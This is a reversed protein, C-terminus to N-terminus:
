SRGWTASSTGPTEPFKNYGVEFMWSERYNWAWALVDHPVAIWRGDSFANAKPLDYYGGQAKGIPEAVDGVDVAGDALLLPFNNQIQIMDPGSKMEVAAAARTPVDNQGIREVQIEVGMQKGFEAAQDMFVKDTAPIFHLQMLYHLKTGKAYAPAQGASSSALFGVRSGGCRQDGGGGQPVDTAIGRGKGDDNREHHRGGRADGRPRGRGAHDCGVKRETGERRKAGKRHVEAARAEEVEAEAELREISRRIHLRMAAESAGPDHRSLAELIARHEPVTEASPRVVGDQYAFFMMNVSDLAAMLQENGALEM